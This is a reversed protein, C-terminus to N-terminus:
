LKATRSGNQRSARRYTHRDTSNSSVDHIFESSLSHYAWVNSKPPPGQIRNKIRIEYVFTCIFFALFLKVFPLM